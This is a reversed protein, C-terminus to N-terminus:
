PSLVGDFAEVFAERKVRGQWSKVIQGASDVLFFHPQGRYGYQRKAEQTSSDDIDFRVFDVQEGYEDKLGDVIPAM